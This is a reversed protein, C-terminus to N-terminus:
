DNYKKKRNIETDVLTKKKVKLDGTKKRKKKQLKLLRKSNWHFM